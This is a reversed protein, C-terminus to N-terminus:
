DKHTKSVLKRASKPLALTRFFSIFDVLYCASFLTLFVTLPLVYRHMVEVLLSAAVLGCFSLMLFVLYPQWPQTKQNFLKFFYLLSILFGIFLAITGCGDMFRYLSHQPDVRFGEYFVWTTTDANDAFFVSSKHVFHSILQTLSMSQYRQLGRQFLDKQMGVLDSNVQAEDGSEQYLMSGFVTSDQRNWRGWSDYNAGVFFNWGVGTGGPVHYQNVAQYGLDILKGTGFLGALVLLLSLSVSLFTNKPQCIIQLVYLLTLAILLVTFIPRYANGIGLVVGLALSLAALKLWSQSRLLKIVLFVLLLALALMTNTVVISVGVACFIIELPNLLWIIAGLRAAKQNRWSKLLYYLTATTILDFLLNSLLIAQYGTGFIKMFIALTASYTMLHPFFAGYGGDYVGPAVGNALKQAFFWHFGTDSLDSDPSYHKGILLFILRFLIGIVIAVIFVIQSAKASTLQPIKRQLWQIFKLYNQHYALIGFCVFALLIILLLATSSISLGNNLYVLVAWLLVLNMLVLLATFIFQTFRRNVSETHPSKKTAKM